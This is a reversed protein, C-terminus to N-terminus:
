KEEILRRGKNEIGLSDNIIRIIELGCVFVADTM